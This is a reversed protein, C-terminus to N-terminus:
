TEDCGLSWIPCRIRIEQEGGARPPRNDRRRARAGCSSGAARAVGTAERVRLTAGGDDFAAARVLCGDLGFAHRHGAHVFLGGYRRLALECMAAQMGSDWDFGSMVAHRENPGCHAYNEPMLGERFHMFRQPNIARHLPDCYLLYGARLAAVGREFDERLGSQEYARLYAHAFKPQRMDNWEGDTNMVGFGGFVYGQLFPPSWVQQYLALRDLCRRAAAMWRADDGGWEAVRLLTQAMWFSPCPTQPKQRHARRFHASKRLLLSYTRFGPVTKPIAVEDFFRCARLAAARAGPDGTAEALDALFWAAMGSHGSDALEPAPSGDARVFAPFGGAASQVACLAAGLRRCRDLFAADPEVLRHWALMLM